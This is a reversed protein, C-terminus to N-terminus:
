VTAGDPFLQKQYADYQRKGVLRYLLRIPGPLNKKSWAESEAPSMSNLISGLQIFQRDRPIQSRAHEGIKDWDKQDFAVSAVPLIKEQEQDLHNFLTNSLQDVSNLIENTQDTTATERWAPILTTLKDLILGVAEHQKKMLEVHIGCAPAREVLNDWLLLDEGNHHNHLGFILEDLYNAVIAARATDAPAVGRILGPAQALVKRFLNHIMVMDSVDCGTSTSPVNEAL